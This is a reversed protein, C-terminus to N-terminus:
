KYIKFLIDKEMIESVIKLDEETDVAKTIFNTNCMKVKGGNEIIRMMDVSEIKELPTPQMKNYELLFERKFPIICVQKKMPVNLVGKKRSPVPERSFYLANNYKDMVVKVENPNEFTEINKIDAVLNTILLSKDDIMPKVSEEIMQPFTLPEDGQVIVIIDCKNQTDKEIKLMAEGCRDTCREHQDSTMIAKGGISEIYDFIEKDCTAVYVENLIKSMKVRRYVHGIMPIGLIKKMPKGPFRSSSM